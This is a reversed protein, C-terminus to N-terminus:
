LSAASASVQLSYGEQGDAAAVPQTTYSVLHCGDRTFGLLVAGAHRPLLRPLHTCGCTPAPRTAARASAFAALM